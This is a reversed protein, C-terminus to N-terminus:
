EVLISAGWSWRVPSVDHHTFVAYETPGAPATADFFSTVQGNAVITSNAMTTGVSRIADQDNTPVWDVRPNGRVIMVKANSPRHERWTLRVGEKGGEQDRRGQLDRLRDPWVVGANQKSLLAAAVAASADARGYGYFYSQGTIGDYAAKRIKGPVREASHEIISRVQWATLDSNISFVLAAVGAVMPTAASTGGFGDIGSTTYDGVRYGQDGQRDTTAIKHDRSAPGRSSPAVVSVQPGFNSYTAHDDEFDVAGVVMVDQSLKAYPNIEDLRQGENTAAFLILVGKGRRGMQAVEVISDRIADFIGNWRWSASIIQAGDDTNPDGDPDMAYFFAEAVSSATGKFVGVGILKSNPAVGRVGTNNPAATIIGAVPTGHRDEQDQPSPDKLPEAPPPLLYLGSLFNPALDPHDKEVADDLVAVRIQPSGLTTNWAEPVRMKQLHWQEGYHPDLIPDANMASAPNAYYDQKTLPAKFDPHSYLVKPNTAGFQMNGSEFLRNAANIIGYSTVAGGGLELIYANPIKLAKLIRLGASAALTTVEAPSVDKNFRAVVYPTLAMPEGPKAEVSGSTIEAPRVIDLAYLASNKKLEDPMDVSFERDSLRVRRKGDLQIVKAGSFELSESLEQIKEPIKGKTTPVNVRTGDEPKIAIFGSAYLPIKRGDSYYFLQTDSDAPVPIHEPIRLEQPPIEFSLVSGCFAANCLIASL